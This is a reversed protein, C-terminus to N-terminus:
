EVAASRHRGPHACRHRVVSGHETRFTTELVKTDGIYRRTSPSGDDPRVELYGGHDPDLIAAFVPPSDMMPLPWWDIQGDPAVLAVTRGNSSRRTTRSQLADTSARGRTM